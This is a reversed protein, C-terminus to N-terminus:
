SEIGAVFDAIADALREPAELAVYHGVGDLEVATVPGAVVQELTTATFPGGFGGVALAPLDLPTRARDHFESGEALMSRYLGIAGNWGGARSYVRTFEEIDAETIAGPTATM